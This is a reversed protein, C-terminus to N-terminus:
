IIYCDWCIFQTSDLLGIKDIYNKKPNGCSYCNSWIKACKSCKLSYRVVSITCTRFENKCTICLNPPMYEFMKTNCKTYEQNTNTTKKFLKKLFNIM